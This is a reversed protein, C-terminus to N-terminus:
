IRWQPANWCHPAVDPDICFVRCKYLLIDTVVQCVM